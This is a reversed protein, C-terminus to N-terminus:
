NIINSDARGIIEFKEYCHNGLYIIPVGIYPSKIRIKM